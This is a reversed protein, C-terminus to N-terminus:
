SAADLLENVAGSVRKMKTIDRTTADPHAVYFLDTEYANRKVFELTGPANSGEFGEVVGMFISDLWNGAKSFIDAIYPEFDGDYVVTAVLRTDNDILFVRFNDVTGVRTEWYWAEAQIQALRERFLTAGNPLVKAIVTIEGKKGVRKGIGDPQRVVTPANAIQKAPESNTVTM